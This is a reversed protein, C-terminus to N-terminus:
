AEKLLVIIDIFHSISFNFGEASKGSCFLFILCQNCLHDKYVILNFIM